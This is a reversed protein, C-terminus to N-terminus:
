SAHIFPQTSNGCAVAPDSSSTAICLMKQARLTPVSSISNSHIPLGMRRRREHKGWQYIMFVRERKWFFRLRVPALSPRRSMGQPLIAPPDSKKGFVQIIHKAISSASPGSPEPNQPVDYWNVPPMQNVSRLTFGFSPKQKNFTPAHTAYERINFLNRVSKLVM